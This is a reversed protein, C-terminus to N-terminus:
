PADGPEPLLAQAVRALHALRTLEVPRFAPGGIRGLLLAASGRFPAAVLECDPGAVAADAWVEAAALERAQALPLWSALCLPGPASASAALTLASGSPEPAEVILGYSAHLLMPVGVVLAHLPEPSSAAEDLLALDDHM